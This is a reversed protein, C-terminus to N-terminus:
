GAELLAALKGAPQVADRDVRYQRAPAAGAAQLQDPGFLMGRLELADGSWAVRGARDIQFAGDSTQRLSRAVHQYQHPQIAVAVVLRCRLEADSGSCGLRLQM